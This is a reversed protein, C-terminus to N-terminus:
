LEMAFAKRVIEYFNAEVRRCIYLDEHWIEVIAWEENTLFGMADGSFKDGFLLINKIEPNEKADYIEDAEILGSYFMFYGDSVAGFGMEMLFDKYEQPADKLFGVYKENSIGKFSYEKAAEKFEMYRGM